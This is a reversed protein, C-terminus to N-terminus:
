RARAAARYCAAVVTLAADADGLAAATADDAAFAAALSDLQGDYEDGIAAPPLPLDRVGEGDYLRLSREPARRPSFGFTCDLEATGATGHLVIRTRDLEAFSGWACRLQLGYAETAVLATVQDEVDVAAGPGAAAHWPASWGERGLFDASTVATASRVPSAGWLHHLVDVLHWGLDVLVGGGASERRTFWASGPVGRGRVWSLEALRPTGLTGARVLDALARVDARHRAAASLVLRGGGAQAADALLRLDDAQTGTPKELFVRLGKRLFTGAIEAHTHNPTLVFVADVEGPALDEHHAHVTVGAPLAGARAVADPRPEVVARVEFDPHALLRPLWVERGVWGLGVVAVRM